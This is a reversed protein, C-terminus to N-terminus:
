MRGPLITQSESEGRTVGRLSVKEAHRGAIGAAATVTTM